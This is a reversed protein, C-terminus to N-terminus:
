EALGVGLKYVITEWDTEKRGRDSLVSKVLCGAVESNIETARALERKRRIVVQGRVRLPYRPFDVLPLYRLEVPDPNPSHELPPGYRPDSGTPIIQDKFDPHNRSFKRSLIEVLARETLALM